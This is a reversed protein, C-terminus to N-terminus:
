IRSAMTVIAMCGQWLTASALTCRYWDQSWWARKSSSADRCLEIGDWSAPILLAVDAILMVIAIGWAGDGDVNPAEAAAYGLYFASPTLNMFLAVLACSLVQYEATREASEFKESEDDADETKLALRQLLRGLRDKTYAFPAEKTMILFIDAFSLVVAYLAVSWAVSLATLANAATRMTGPSNACCKTCCKCCKTCCDGVATFLKKVCKFCGMICKASQNPFKACIAVTPVICCFLVILTILLAIWFTPIADNDCQDAYDLFAQYGIFNPYDPLLRKIKPIVGYETSFEPFLYKFRLGYGRDCYYCKGNDDNYYGHDVTGLIHQFSLFKTLDRKPCPECSTGATRTYMRFPCSNCGRRRSTTPFRRRSTVEPKVGHRGIRLYNKAQKANNIREPPDTPGTWTNKPCKISNNSGFTGNTYNRFLRAYTSYPEYTAGDLGVVIDLTYSVDNLVPTYLNAGAGAPKCQGSGYEGTHYGPFCATCM